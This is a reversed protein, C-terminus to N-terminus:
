YLPRKSTGTLSASRPDRDRPTMCWGTPAISFNRNPTDNTDGAAKQCELAMPSVVMKAWFAGPRRACWITGERDGGAPAHHRGPAAIRDPRGLNANGRPGQPGPAELRPIAALFLIASPTAPRPDAGLRCRTIKRTQARMLGDGFMCIRGYMCCIQDVQGAYNTGSRWM